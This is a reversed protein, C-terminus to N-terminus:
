GQQRPVRRGDALVATYHRDVPIDLSELLNKPAKTFTACTGVTVDIQVFRQGSQDSIEVTTNFTGM